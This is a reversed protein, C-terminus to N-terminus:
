ITKNAGYQTTAITILKVLRAATTSGTYMIPVPINGM